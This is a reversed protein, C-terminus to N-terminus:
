VKIGVEIGKLYLCLLTSKHAASWQIPDPDSDTNLSPPIAIDWEATQLGPQAEPQQQQEKNLIISIIDGEHEKMHEM